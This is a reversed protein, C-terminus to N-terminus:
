PQKKGEPDFGNRMMMGIANRAFTGPPKATSIRAVFASTV